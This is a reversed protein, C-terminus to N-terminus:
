YLLDNIKNERLLRKIINCEKFKELSENSDIFECYEDLNIRDIM